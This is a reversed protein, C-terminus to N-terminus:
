RRAGAHYNGGRLSLLWDDFLALPYILFITAWLIFFLTLQTYNARLYFTRVARFQYSVHKAFSTHVARFSVGVKLRRDYHIEGIDHLCFSMDYDEWIDGRMLIKSKIKQWDNKRIACNAGWLMRHGTILRVMFLYWNFIAVGMWKIPVDYPRAGGTVAVIDTDSFDNIIEEVWNIPLITDSDIRGLIDSRAANFGSAQAFVQHQRPEHLIKVFKFRRAIEVTKDTSNNDVVIVEDPKVSQAAIADLCPKLYDQENYVPIVITLTLTKDSM